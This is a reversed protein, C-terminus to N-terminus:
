LTGALTNPEIGVREERVNEGYNPVLIEDNFGESSEIKSTNLGETSPTRGLGLIDNPNKPTNDDGFKGDNGGLFGMIDVIPNIEVPKLSNSGKDYFIGKPFLLNQIELRTELDSGLWIKDLQSGFKIAQYIDDDFHNIEYDLKLISKELDDISHNLDKIIRKYDMRIEIDNEEVMLNFVTEKKKELDNLRKQLSKKYKLDEHELILFFSRLKTDLMPICKKKISLGKLLEHYAENLDNANKNVKCGKNCRYYGIAKKEKYEGTMNNGCGFCVLYRRLPLEERDTVKKKTRNPSIVNNVRCFDEMSVLPEHNGKSICRPAPNRADRILGCYFPNQFITSVVSEGVTMGMNVLYNTIDRNTSGNLKMAFATKILRGEDTITIVQEGNIKTINYGRVIGGMKYGNLLNDQINAHIYKKRKENDIEAEFFKMIQNLRGQPTFVDQADEIDIFGIGLDILQDLIDTLYKGDRGFRESHFVAVKSIKNNPDKCYKMLSEISPRKNGRKSSEGDVRFVKKIKFGNEEAWESVAKEQVSVSQSRSKSDKESRRCYIVIYNSDVKFTTDHDFGFHERITELLNV